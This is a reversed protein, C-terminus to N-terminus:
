ELYCLSHPPHEAVLGTDYVQVCTGLSFNHQVQDFTIYVAAFLELKESLSPRFIAADPGPSGGTLRLDAWRVFEFLGV